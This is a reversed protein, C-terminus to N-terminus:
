FKIDKSWKLNDIVKWDREKNELWIAMKDGNKMQWFLEKIEVTDTQILNPYISYLNSQYEHLKIGKSLKIISEKQPNGYKELVEKETIGNIKKNVM